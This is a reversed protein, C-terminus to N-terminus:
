AGSTAALFLADPQLEAPWDIAASAMRQSTLAGLSVGGVAVRARSKRRAWRVLCGAEAAWARFLKFFGPLGEALAPEGGFRGPLRRRGHWPGEARIVRIGRRTLENIPDTLDTWFETEMAIGHLFILTPPDSYGLPEYVHAWATDGLLPSPFRLWYERGYASAVPHSEELEVGGPSEIGGPPPYDGGSQQSLAKAGAMAQEPNAMPDRPARLSKCLGLFAIGGSIASQAARRREIEVRVLDTPRPPKAAFYAAEWLRNAAELGLALGARQRLAAELREATALAIGTAAAFRAPSGGSALAAALARQHPLAWGGIWRVALRDFWPRLVFPALPGDLCPHRTPPPLASRDIVIQRDM